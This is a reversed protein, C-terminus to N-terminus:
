NQKFRKLIIYPFIHKYWPVYEKAELDLWNSPSTLIIKKSDGRGNACSVKVELIYEGEPLIAQPIRNNGNFVNSLAIPMALSCGDKHDPETFVVDLRQTSQGIDVRDMGTTRTTYSVGAWHLNNSVRLLGGNIIVNEPHKVIIARAECGTALGTKSAVELTVFKWTKSNAITWKNNDPRNALVLKPKPYVKVLYIILAAILSGVVGIAIGFILKNVDM